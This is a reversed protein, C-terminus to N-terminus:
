PYVRSIWAVMARLMQNPVVTKNKEIWIKPGPLHQHEVRAGLRKLHDTVRAYLTEDSSSLILIDSAPKTEISSIEIKELDALLLRTVPFGLLEAPSEGIRGNAVRGLSQRVREQHLATLEELYSVGSVVPDWLVMRQIDGRGAGVMLSLTGGLRLGILCINPLGCRRRIEAIASAVNSSWEPVTGEACEGHSDGCAYFDFRLVPFGMQALQSALQRYSRHSRIYEQGAPYCLVIGCDRTRASQPAHYCGFLPKGATGFYFPEVAAGLM